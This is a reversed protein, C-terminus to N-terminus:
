SIPTHIPRGKADVLEYGREGAYRYFVDARSKVPTTDFGSLDADPACLREVEEPWRFAAKKRTVWWDILPGTACWYLLRVFPRGVYLDWWDPTPTNVPFGNPKHVHGLRRLQDDPQIADLGHEMYRRIFELRDLNAWFTVGDRSTFDGELAFPESYFKRIFNASVKGFKLHPQPFYLQLRFRGSLTQGIQTLPRVKNWQLHLIQRGWLVHVLQAQRNFRPSPSIAGLAALRFVFGYVFLLFAYVAGAQLTAAIVGGQNKLFGMLIIFLSFNHMLAFCYMILSCQGRVFDPEIYRGNFMLPDSVDDSFNVSPPWMALTIGPLGIHDRKERLTEIQREFGAADTPQLTPDDHITSM